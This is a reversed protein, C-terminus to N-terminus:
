QQQETSETNEGSGQGDQETEAPIAGSRLRIADEQIKLAADAPLIDGALMSKVNDSIANRIVMILQGYPEGRCIKAQEYAASLISDKSFGDSRDISGLVPLTTTSENWALQIEETLMFDIFKRVAELQDGYTNTNIMFGLGSIMPTPYRTGGWVRPIKSLGINVGAEIYEEASSYYDIIMHARGNKFLENIEGYEMGAALIRSQNYAYDLFELTSQTARSDLTLSNTAYDIIWGNYGGIFPIIWDAESENLIFGYTGKEFDGSGTIEQTYVLVQEFDAPPQDIFDKNYYFTLFDYSRFPIIYNKNNYASIERLGDLILAYDVEDVIEKTVNSPALKQVGDLDLLIIEPGAGALSAAEFQDQLEEQSRFHRTEINIDRFSSVFIDRSEILAMRERPELCDWLNITTIQEGSLTDEDTTETEEETATNEEAKGADRNFLSCGAASSLFLAAILFFVAIWAKLYFLKNKLQKKRDFM